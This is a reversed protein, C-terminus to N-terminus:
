IYNIAPVGVNNFHKFRKKKSFIWNVVYAFTIRNVYKGSYNSNLVIIM